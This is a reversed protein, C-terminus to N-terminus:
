AWTFVKLHKAADKPLLRIFDNAVYNDPNSEKPIWIAKIMGIPIRGRYGYIGMEKSLSLPKSSIARKYSTKVREYQEVQGSFVEIDYDQIVKSKDPIKFEIIIPIGSTGDKSSTRNAHFLAKISHTTFFIIGSSDIKDSLPWNKTAKGEIIGERLIKSLYLSSTGHFGIDPFKKLDDGKVMKYDNDLFMKVEYGDLKLQRMIQETLYSHYVDFPHQDYVIIHKATDDLMGCFIDCVNQKLDYFVAKIDKSYLEIDFAFFNLSKINNTPFVENLKEIILKLTPFLDDMDFIFIWKKFAIVYRYPLQDGYVIMEKLLKTETKFDQISFHEKFSIM